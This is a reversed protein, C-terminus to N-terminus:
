DGEIAGAREIRVNGGIRSQISLAGIGRARLHGGVRGVILPTALDEVELHGGCDAVEIAVGSPIRITAHSRFLMEAASGDRTVEPVANCDIEWSAAGGILTLHSDARVIKLSEVGDLNYDNM